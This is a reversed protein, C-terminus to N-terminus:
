KRGRAAPLNTMLKIKKELYADFFIKYNGSIVTSANSM